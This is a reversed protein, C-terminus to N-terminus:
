DFGDRRFQSGTESIIVQVPNRTTAGSGRRKQRQGRAVYGVCRFLLPYALRKPGVALAIRHRHHHHM